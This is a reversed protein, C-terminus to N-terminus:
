QSKLTEVSPLLQEATELVFEQLIETLETLVFDCVGDDLSQLKNEPVNKSAWELLSSVLDDTLDNEQISEVYCELTTGFQRKNREQSKSLTAMALNCQPCIM